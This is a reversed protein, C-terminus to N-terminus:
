KVQLTVRSWQMGGRNDHAVAWLQLPGPAKPARLQGRYKANWGSTADNLLRVENIAGRDVYYNVWMQETVDSGYIESTVPDTEVVQEIRPAVDIPPCAFDGDQECAEICRTEGELSCDVEVAAAGQCDAGLCDGPALNEDILFEGQDNPGASFSPNENSVDEFSYISSYGVIFDESGLPQEQADLCRIPLGTSGAAEPDVEMDFSLQGACVAFFVIYLGYPRQGSVFQGQRGSIIDSPLRVTFSDGLGFPVEGGMQGTMGTMGQQAFCGYFLDGPPNVCGGIWARQLDSRGQPDHWLMQLSVEDGPQAYPRDKQVGMVRITKIENSPDFEPGCGLASLALSIALPLPAGKL